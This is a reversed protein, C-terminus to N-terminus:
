RPMGDWRDLKRVLYQWARHISEPHYIHERKLFAEDDPTHPVNGGMDVAYLQAQAAKTLLMSGVTAEEVSTAALAIGHNKMFLVKHDGMARAVAQGQDRTVILDTMETFVPIQPPSFYSGEHTVPTITHGASALVTALPPHTHVVANIEPRNRMIEAHIPFENHRQRMGAIRTGEFDILVLDDPTIEELGVGAAKMWLRDSHNPDRVTMHGWIVDGHGEMALIRCGLALTARLEYDSSDFAM